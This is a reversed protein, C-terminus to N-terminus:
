NYEPYIFIKIIKGSLKNFLYYIENPANYLTDKNLESHKILVFGEEGEDDSPPLLAAVNKKAEAITYGVTVNSLIKHVKAVEDKSIAFYHMKEGHHILDNNTMYKGGSGTPLANIGNKEDLMRKKMELFKILLAIDQEKKLEKEKASSSSEAIGDLFLNEIEKDISSKIPTTNPTSSPINGVKLTEPEPEIDDNTNTSTSKTEAEINKNTVIKDLKINLIHLKRYINTQNIRVKQLFWYLFVFSSVLGGIASGLFFSLSM